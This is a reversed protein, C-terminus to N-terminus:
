AENTLRNEIQKMRIQDRRCGWHKENAKKYSDDLSNMMEEFLGEFNFNCLTDVILKNDMEVYEDIFQDDEFLLDNSLIQSAVLQCVPECSISREESVDKPQKAILRDLVDLAAKANRKREGKSKLDKKAKKRDDKYGFMQKQAGSLLVHLFARRAKNIEKSSFKLKAITKEMIERSRSKIYHTDLYRVDEDLMKAIVQMSLKQIREARKEIADEKNLM